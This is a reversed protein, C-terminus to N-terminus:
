RLLKLLECTTDWHVNQTAKITFHPNHISTRNIFQHATYLTIRREYLSAGITDMAFYYMKFNSYGNLNVLEECSYFLWSKYGMILNEVCYSQKSLKIVSVYIKWNLNMNRRQRFFCTKTSFIDKYFLTKTRFFDNDFVFFFNAYYSTISHWLFTAICRSLRFGHFTSIDWDTNMTLTASSM